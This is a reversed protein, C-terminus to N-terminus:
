LLSHLAQSLEHEYLAITLMISFGSLLGALQLLLQFFASNNKGLHGNLEPM